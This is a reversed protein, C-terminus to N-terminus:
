YYYNNNNTENGIADILKSTNIMIKNYANKEEKLIRNKDVIKRTMQMVSLRKMDYLSKIAQMQNGLESLENAEKSLDMRLRNISYELGDIKEKLESVINYRDNMFM